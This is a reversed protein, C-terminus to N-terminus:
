SAQIQRDKKYLSSWWLTETDVEMMVHQKNSM